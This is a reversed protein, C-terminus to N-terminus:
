RKMRRKFAKARPDNIKSRQYNASLPKVKDKQLAITALANQKQKDLEEDSDYEPESSSGEDVSGEELKLIEQHVDKDKLTDVAAAVNVRPKMKWNRTTRKQTSHKKRKRSPQNNSETDVGDEVDIGSGEEKTSVEGLLGNRVEEKIMQYDNFLTTMKNDGFSLFRHVKLPSPSVQFTSAVQVPTIPPPMRKKTPSSDSREVDFDIDFKNNHKSIYLPTDLITSSATLKKNPTTIQEKPITATLKQLLSNGRVPSSMGASPTLIEIKGLRNKTPTKFINGEELKSSKSKLPSSEPPTMSTLKMDFISLVKGNAQPTPGLEATNRIFNADSSHDKGDADNPNNNNDNDNDNNDVGGEQVIKTEKESGSKLAKYSKYLQYTKPDKKIDSKSPVRGHHKFYNHEWRKIELKLSEM